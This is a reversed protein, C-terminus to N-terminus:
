AMPKEANEAGEVTFTQNTDPVKKGVGIGHGARM